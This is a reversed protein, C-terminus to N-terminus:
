EKKRESKILMFYRYHHGTDKSVGEEVDTNVDLHYGTPVKPKRIITKENIIVRKMRPHKLNRSSRYAKRDKLEIGLKKENEAKHNVMYEALKIYRGEEIYLPEMKIFGQKWPVETMYDFNDIKNIIIHIHPADIGVVAIWKLPQGRKKYRRKLRDKFNELDRYVQDLTISTGKKYTLNLFIDGPVFNADILRRLKKVVRKTNIKKVAEVTPSDRESRSNHNGVMSSHVQEVEIVGPRIYYRNEIHM